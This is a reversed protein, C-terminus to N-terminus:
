LLGQKRIRANGSRLMSTPHVRYSLFRPKDPKSVRLIDTNCIAPVHCSWSWRLLSVSRQKLFLPLETLYKHLPWCTLTHLPYILYAPPLIFSSFSSLSFLLLFFLFLPQCPPTLKTIHVLQRLSCLERPQLRFFIFFLLQCVFRCAIYQFLEGLALSISLDLVNFVEYHLFKLRFFLLLSFSKFSFSYM